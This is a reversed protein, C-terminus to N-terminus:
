NVDNWSITKTLLEMIEEKTYYLNSAEEKTLVTSLEEKTAFKEDTQTKNYFNALDIETNGIVEWSNNYWIYEDYINNTTGTKKLLYIINSEGIDPLTDVPKFNVSVINGLLENVETKNYTDSKLYYNELKNTSTTVISDPDPIKKELESLKVDLRKGTEDYVAKESTLPSISNGNIDKLTKIEM